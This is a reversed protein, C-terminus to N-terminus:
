ISQVAAKAPRREEVASSWYWSLIADLTEGALIASEMVQRARSHLEQQWAVESVNSYCKWEGEYLPNRGGNLWFGIVDELPYGLFIGIEHPFLNRHRRSGQIRRILERVYENVTDGGYGISRLFYLAGPRMFAREVLEPIFIFVQNEPSVDLPYYCIPCLSRIHKLLGAAETDMRILAAPKVGLLVPACCRCLELAAAKRCDHADLSMLTVDDDIMINNM